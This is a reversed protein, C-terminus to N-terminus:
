DPEPPVDKCEKIVVREATMNHVRGSMTVTQGVEFDALKLVEHKM